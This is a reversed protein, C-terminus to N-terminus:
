NNSFNSDIKHAKGVKSVLEPKLIHNQYMPIFLSYESWTYSPTNRRRYRRVVHSLPLGNWGFKQSLTKWRRQITSIPKLDPNRLSPFLFPSNLNENVHHKRVIDLVHKAESHVEEGGNFWYKKEAPSYPYWKGDIIHDWQASLVRRMKAGTGFYFRIALNARWNTEDRELINLFEKLESESIELIAPYPPIEQKQRISYARRQIRDSVLGLSGNWRSASKFVQGIFAQLMRSSGFPIRSNTIEEALKRADIEELLTSRSEESIHRYISVIGDVYAQNRNGIRLKNITREAMQDLTMSRVISAAQSHRLQRRETESLKGRHQSLRDRAWERAEDLFLGLSWKHIGQKLQQRIKQQSWYNSWVSFSERVLRGNSNRCRIAYGINGGKKGSWGRIGFGKTTLDAIWFEGGQPPKLSDVFEATLNVKRAM